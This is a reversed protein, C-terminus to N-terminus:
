RRQTGIRQAAIRIAFAVFPETPFRKACRELAPLASPLGVEALVEVAAACVNIEADRDILAALLASAVAAPLARALECSLLRVDPDPDALLTALRAEVQAPIAVLADLVGTRLGADDSRLCPLMADIADPSGSRALATLITERVRPDVEEPLAAGLAAVGGPQTALTRAAAWRLDPSPDNLAKLVDPAQDPAAGQADKRILPM